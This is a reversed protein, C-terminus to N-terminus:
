TMRQIDTSEKPRHPFPIKFSIFLYKITAKLYVKWIVGDIAIHKM